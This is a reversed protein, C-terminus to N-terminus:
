ANYIFYVGTGCYQVTHRLIVAHYVSLRRFQWLYLRLSDVNIEVM